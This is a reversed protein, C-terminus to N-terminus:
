HCVSQYVPPVWVQQTVPPVWVQGYKPRVWVHGLKKMYAPRRYRASWTVHHGNRLLWHGRRVLETKFHGATVTVTKYYGATVLVQACIPQVTLPIVASDCNTFFSGQGCSGDGFPDILTVQAYITTPSQIDMVLPLTQWSTSGTPLLNYEITTDGVADFPLEGTADTLPTPNVIFSGGFSGAPVNWSFSVSRDGNVAATASIRPDAKAVSAFALGLTLAAVVAASFFGKM